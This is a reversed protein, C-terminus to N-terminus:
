RRPAIEFSLGRPRRSVCPSSQQALCSLRRPLWRLSREHWPGLLAPRNRYAQIVRAHTGLRRLSTAAPTIGPASVAAPAPDPGPAERGSGCLCDVSIPATPADAGHDRGRASPARGRGASSRRHGHWRPAPPRRRAAPRGEQDAADRQQRGWVDHPRGDYRHGSRPPGPAQTDRGLRTISHPRRGAVAASAAGIMGAHDGLM